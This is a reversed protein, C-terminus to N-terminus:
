FHTDSLTRVKSYGRYDFMWDTGVIIIDIVIHDSTYGTAPKLWLAHTIQTGYKELFAYALIHCAGGAFFVRDPLARRMAQDRKRYGPTTIRYMGLYVQNCTAKGNLAMRLRLFETNSPHVTRM